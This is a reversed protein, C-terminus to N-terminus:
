FPPVQHRLSGPVSRARSEEIRVRFFSSFTPDWASKVRPGYFFIRSKVLRDRKSFTKPAKWSPAQKRTSNVSVVNTKSNHLFIHNGLNMLAAQAKNYGTKPLESIESM